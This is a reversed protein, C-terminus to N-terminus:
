RVNTTKKLFNNQKWRGQVFCKCACARLPLRPWRPRWWQETDYGHHDSSVNETVKVLWVRTLRVERVPLGETLIGALQSFSCKSLFYVPMSWYHFQTRTNYAFDLNKQLKAYWTVMQCHVMETSKHDRTNEEPRKTKAIKCVQSTSRPGSRLDLLDM